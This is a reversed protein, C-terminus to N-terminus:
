FETLLVDEEQCRPAFPSTIVVAKGAIMVEERLMIRERPTLHDLLFRWATELGNRNALVLADFLIKTGNKLGFSDLVALCERYLMFNAATDLAWAMNRNEQDAGAYLVRLSASLVGNREGHEICQIMRLSHKGSNYASRIKDHVRCRGKKLDVYHQTAYAISEELPYVIRWRPNKLMRHARVHVTEHSRIGEDNSFRQSSYYIKQESCVAAVPYVAGVCDAATELIRDLAKRAVQRARRYELAGGDLYYTRRIRRRDAIVAFGM